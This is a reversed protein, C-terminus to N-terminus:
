FHTWVLRGNPYIHRKADFLWSADIFDVEEQYGAAVLHPLIKQYHATFFLYVERDRQIKKDEAAVHLHEQMDAFLLTLDIHQPDTYLRLFRDSSQLVLLEKVQEFDEDRGVVVITRGRLFRWFAQMLDAAGGASTRCIDYFLNGDFWPTKIYYKAWLKDYSNGRYADLAYNGACHYIAPKIENHGLLQELVVFTNYRLPLPHYTAPQPPYKAAFFYNLIDQDLLHYEPHSHLLNIGTQVLDKIKRFSKLDILLIGANFYRTGDVTGDDVIPRSWPMNKFILQESVAGLVAGGLEEEWLESIDLNVIVDSDIYILREVSAPLLKGVLLRWFTAPSLHSKSGLQRIADMEPIDCEDVNYFCIKQNYKRALRIFKDKNAVNLTNDHLLHVTLHDQTNEFLSCISMGTNKSYRGDKDYNVYCVHIMLM